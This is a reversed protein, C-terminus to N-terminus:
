ICTSTKLTSPCEPHFGQDWIWTPDHAQCENIKAMPLPRPLPSTSFFTDDKIVVMSQETVRYSIPPDLPYGLIKKYSQECFVFYATTPFLTYLAFIELRRKSVSRRKVRCGVVVCETNWPCHLLSIRPAGIAGRDWVPDCVLAHYDDFFVFPKLM